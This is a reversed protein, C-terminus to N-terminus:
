NTDYIGSLFVHLANYALEPIYIMNPKFIKQPLFNLFSILEEDWFLPRTVIKLM